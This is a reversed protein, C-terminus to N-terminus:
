SQGFDLEHTRRLASPARRMRAITVIAAVVLGTVLGLPAAIPALPLGTVHGVLSLANWAVLGWLLSLAFRRDM